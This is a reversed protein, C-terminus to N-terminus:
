ALLCLQGRRALRGSCPRISYVEAGDVTGGATILADALTGVPREVVIDDTVTGDPAIDVIDVSKSSGDIAGIAEALEGLSGPTDPLQVRILFSMPRHFAKEVNFVVLALSNHEM